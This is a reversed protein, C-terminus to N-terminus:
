NFSDPKISLNWTSLSLVEHILSPSTNGVSKLKPIFFNSNQSCDGNGHDFNLQNVQSAAELDLGNGLAFVDAVSLAEM